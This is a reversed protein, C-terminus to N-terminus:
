RPGLQGVANRIEICVPAIRTMLTGAPGEAYTLPNLGLLDTPIKLDGGRPYVLYVREHGLAGMFLGLEFVVNDRPAHSEKGRSVVRDDPWMVLVAFDAISIETELEPLPFHSAGFVGDTWLRVVFRDHAFGSQIARATEVHETSSGIFLHPIENRERVLANRQRLRDALEVAISRWLHPHAESVKSFHPETVKAVVTLDIAEVTASRVAAPDILAMEGVHQGANRRNVERGNVKISVRGAMIFFIDNDEGGQVIIKEGRQFELLESVGAIATACDTNGAISKQRLLADLLRRHGDPDTFRDIM